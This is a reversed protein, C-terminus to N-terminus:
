ESFGGRIWLEDIMMHGLDLALLAGSRHGLMLHLQLPLETIEGVLLLSEAPAPSASSVVLGGGAPEQRTTTQLKALLCTTVGTLWWCSTEGLDNPQNNAWGDM